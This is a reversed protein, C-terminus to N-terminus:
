VMKHGQKNMIEHYSAGSLPLFQVTTTTSTQLLAAVPTANNNNSHQAVRGALPFESYRACCSIPNNNLKNRQVVILQHALKISKV